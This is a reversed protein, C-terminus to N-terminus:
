HITCIPKTLAIPGELCVAKQLATQHGIAKAGASGSEASRAWSKGCCRDVAAADAVM